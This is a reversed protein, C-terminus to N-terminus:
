DQVLRNTNCMSNLKQTSCSLYVHGEPWLKYISVYKYNDATLCFVVFASQDVSV